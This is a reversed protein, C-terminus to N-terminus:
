PAVHWQSHAFDTGADPFQSDDPYTESDGFAVIISGEPAPPPPQRHTPVACLPYPAANRPTPNLEDTSASLFAFCRSDTDEHLPVYLTSTLSLIRMANSRIVPDRRLDQMSAVLQNWFECFERRHQHSVYRVNLQRAADLTNRFITRAAPDDYDPHASSLERAIQVLNRLRISDRQGSYETLLSQSWDLGRQVVSTWRDHSEYDEHRSIAVAVICRALFCIDPDDDQTFRDALLVFDICKFVASDVSCLAHYFTRQLLYPDTEMAKLSLRTRRQGTVDSVLESSLSRDMFSLILKPLRNANLTRLVEAPGEVRKSRYFGPIGALFQELEQDQGLASLLWSMAGVDLMSSRSEALKEVELIAHDLMLWGGDTHIYPDRTTGRSNGRRTITMFHSLFLRPFVRLSLLFGSLPTSYLSQPHFYPMLSYRLYLVLPVAIYLNVAVVVVPNGSSTLTILGILFFFISLHLFTNLSNVMRQLDVLSGEQMM